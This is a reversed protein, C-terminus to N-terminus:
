KMVRVFVILPPLCNKCLLTQDGLRSTDYALQRSEGKPVTIDTKDWSATGIMEIDQNRQNILNFRVKDDKQLVIKEPKVSEGIMIDFSKITGDAKAGLILETPATPSIANATSTAVPTKSISASEPVLAIEAKVPQNKETPTASIPSQSLGSSYIAVGFGIALLVLASLSLSIRKGTM